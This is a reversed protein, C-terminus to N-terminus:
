YAFYPFTFIILAYLFDLVKSEDAFFCSSGKLPLEQKVSKNCRAFLFVITVIEYVAVDWLEYFASYQYVYKENITRWQVNRVAIFMM